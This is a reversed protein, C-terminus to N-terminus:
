FSRTIGIAIVPYLEFQDLSEQLSAEEAALDTLFGPDTALLGDATLDVKPKGQFVVGVDAILGWSGEEDGWTSNWGLGAYPAFDDFDIVGNMNGVQAATYVTGGIDYSLTPQASANLENGNYLVGGTLRFTGSFPHWDVMASFSLLDLDFDYAIDDETGTYTYSFYNAGLRAGFTDNFNQELELGAGLTAAKGGLSTDAAVVPTGACCLLAASLFMVCLRRM